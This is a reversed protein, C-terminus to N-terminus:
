RCAESVTVAFSGLLSVFSTGPVGLAAPDIRHFWWWTEILRKGDPGM